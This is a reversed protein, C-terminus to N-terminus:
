PEYKLLLNYKSTELLQIRREMVLSTVSHQTTINDYIFQQRCFAKVQTTLMTLITSKHRRLLKMQTTTENTNDNSEMYKKKDVVGGFIFQQKSQKTPHGKLTQAIDREVIIVSKYHIGQIALLENKKKLQWVLM